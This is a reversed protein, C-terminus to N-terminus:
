RVTSAAGPRSARPKTTGRRVLAATVAALVLAALVVAVWPGLPDSLVHALVFCGAGAAVVVALRWWATTRRERLVGWAAGALVVVAGAWRLGTLQAAAFGLLLSGGAIAATLATPRDFRM